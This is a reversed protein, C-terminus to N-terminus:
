LLGRLAVLQVIVKHQGACGSGASHYKGIEM